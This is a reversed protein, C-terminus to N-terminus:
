PPAPNRGDVTHIHIYTPIIHIIHIYMYMCVDYHVRDCLMDALSEYHSLRTINAQVHVDRIYIYIYMCVYDYM